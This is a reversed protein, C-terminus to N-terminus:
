RKVLALMARQAAGAMGLVEAQYAPADSISATYVFQKDAGTGGLGGMLSGLVSQTKPAEPAQLKFMDTGGTLSEALAVVVNGDKAPSAKDGFNAAYARSAEEGKGNAGPSRFALRTQGALLGVQAFANGSYTNRHTSSFRDVAATASGLTVVFTAKVLHADLAKALAVELGPLEYIESESIGSPGGPTSSGMGMRSVWAPIYTKKQMAFKGAEVAYPLYPKLASAGVLLTDGQLNAFKAFNSIGALKAVAQYAPSALVTAEPLLEFGSSQLDAKLNQYLEDAIRALLAHDFEPMQLTSSADSKAGLLGGTSTKTGSSAQFSVMVSTIAVRRTSALPAESSDTFAAKAAPATTQAQASSIGPGCLMLTALCPALFRHCSRM